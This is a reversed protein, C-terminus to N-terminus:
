GENQSDNGITEKMRLITELQKTREKRRREEKKTIIENKQM